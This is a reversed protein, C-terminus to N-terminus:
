AGESMLASNRDAPRKEAARTESVPKESVLKEAVLQQDLRLASESGLLAMPAPAPLALPPEAGAEERSRADSVLHRAADNVAVLAFFSGLAAILVAEVGFSLVGFLSTVVFPIAFAVALRPSLTFLDVLPRFGNERLFGLAGGLLDRSVARPEPLRVRLSQPEVRLRAVERTLNRAADRVTQLNQPSLIDYLYSTSALSTRVAVAHTSVEQRADLVHSTEVAHDERTDM